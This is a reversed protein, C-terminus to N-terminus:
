NTAPRATSSTWASTAAGIRWEPKYYRKAVFVLEKIHQPISRWGTTTNLRVERMAPTLLKIVSGLSREASLFLAAISAANTKSATPTIGRLLNVEDFDKQFDAVFVPGTLVADTIAEFDREQRRRLRHMTQSLADARRHHRRPAVRSELGAAKEMRVVYGSPRVYIKDPM